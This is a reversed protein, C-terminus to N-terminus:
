TRDFVVESHLMDHLEDPNHPNERLGVITISGQAM